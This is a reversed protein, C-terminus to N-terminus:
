YLFTPQRLQFIQLLGALFIKIKTNFLLRQGSFDPSSVHLHTMGQLSELTMNILNKSSHM